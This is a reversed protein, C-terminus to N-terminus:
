VCLAQPRQVLMSARLLLHQQLVGYQQQQQQQQMGANGQLSPFESGYTPVVYMGGPQQQQQGAGYGPDFRQQYRDVGRRYDPDQVDRQKDKYVAKPGGAGQGGRQQQQQQQGRGSGSGAAPVVAAAAAAAAPEPGVTGAGSSGGGGRGMGRGPNVLNFGRDGVSPPVAAMYGSGASAGAGASGPRAALNSSSGNAASKHLSGSSGHAHSLNPQKGFLKERAEHYDAEREKHSKHRRQQQQGDGGQQQQQAAAAPPRKILAKPEIKITSIDVDALSQVTSDSDAAAAPRKAVVRPQGNEFATSTSLHHHQSVKHELLRQYNSTSPPFELTTQSADKLFQKVTEELKLVTERNSDLLAAKLAPDLPAAAAAPEAQPQTQESTNDGSAADAPEEIPKEQEPEAAPPTEEAQEDKQVSLQALEDALQQEQQGSEAM